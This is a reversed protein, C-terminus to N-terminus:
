FGPPGGGSQVTGVGCSCNYNGGIQPTCSCLCWNDCSFDQNNSGCNDGSTDVPSNMGGCQLCTVSCTAGYWKVCAQNCMSAQQGTYTKSCYIECQTVQAADAWAFQPLALAAFLLCVLGLCLCLYEGVDSKKM